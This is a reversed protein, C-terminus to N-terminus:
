IREGLGAAVESIVAKKKASNASAYFITYKITHDKMFISALM